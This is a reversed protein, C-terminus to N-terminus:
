RQGCLRSVWEPLPPGGAEDVGEWAERLEVEGAAESVFYWARISPNFSMFAYEYTEGTRALCTRSGDPAGGSSPEASTVGPLQGYLGLLLQLNFQGRLSVSVFQASSFLHFDLTAPGYFENLCDWDHYTGDKMAEFTPRDVTLILGRGDDEPVLPLDPQFATMAAVDAVVRDYTAQRAVIRDGDLERALGEATKDARPTEALESATGIPTPCSSAPPPSADAPDAPERDCGTTSVALGGLSLTMLLLATARVPLPAGRGGEVQM